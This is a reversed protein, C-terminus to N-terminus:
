RLWAAIMEEYGGDIAKLAENFAESPTGYHFTEAPQKGGSITHRHM